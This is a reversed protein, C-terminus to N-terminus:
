SAQLSQRRPRGAKHTKRIERLKEVDNESLLRDRGLKLGIGHKICLLRIAGDTIGLSKAVQLVTLTNEMAM